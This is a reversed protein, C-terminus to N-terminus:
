VEDAGGSPGDRRILQDLKEASDAALRHIGQLSVSRILRGDEVYKLLREGRRSTFTLRELLEGPVVRDFTLPAGPPGVLM